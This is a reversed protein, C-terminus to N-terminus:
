ALVEINRDLATLALVRRLAVSPSALVFRRDRLRARRSATV